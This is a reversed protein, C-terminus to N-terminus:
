QNVYELWAKQEAMREAEKETGRLSEDTEQLKRRVRGISEIRPLKDNTIVSLFTDDNTIGYFARYVLYALIRDDNKAKESNRLVAGVMDELKKKEM